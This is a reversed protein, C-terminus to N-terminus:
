TGIKFRGPPVNPSRDPDHWGQCTSCRHREFKQDRPTGLRHDPNACDKGACSEIVPYNTFKQIPGYIWEFAFRWAGRRQWVPYGTSKTVPGLWIWCGTEDDVDVHDWFEDPLPPTTM